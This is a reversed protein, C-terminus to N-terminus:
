NSKMWVFARPVGSPLPAWRRSMVPPWQQSPGREVHLLIRVYIIVVGAVAGIYVLVQLQQCFVWAGRGVQDVERADRALDQGGAVATRLGANHARPRRRQRWSTPEIASAHYGPKCLMCSPRTDVHTASHSDM